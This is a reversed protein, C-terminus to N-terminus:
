DEFDLDSDSDANDSSSDDTAESIRSVPSERTALEQSPAQQHEELLLLVEASISSNKRPPLKRLSSILPDSTILLRNLLDQNGLVRCNKRTNSERFKKLDKNRSEQAEESLQGIPLIAEKIIIAGHILIKHVTAPMFYWPYKEVFLKATYLAYERFADVNIAYGCSITSLVVGFRRIVDEDIGTISASLSSDAFFRRATNGDNTTGSGGPKPVDVLLGTRERFNQQIERKKEEFIRKNNDGRVQWAKLELRYSIHVLCEFIRYRMRMM